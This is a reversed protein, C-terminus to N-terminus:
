DSMAAAPGYPVNYGSIQEQIEAYVHIGTLFITHIMLLESGQVTNQQHSQAAHVSQYSCAASNTVQDSSRNARHTFISPQRVMTGTSLNYGTSISTSSFTFKWLRSHLPMKEQQDIPLSRIDYIARKRNNWSELSETTKFYVAHVINFQRYLKRRCM